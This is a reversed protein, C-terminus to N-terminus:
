WIRVHDPTNGFAFGILHRPPTITRKLLNDVPELRNLHM